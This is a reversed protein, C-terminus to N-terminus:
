AMAHSIWSRLSGGVYIDAVEGGKFMALMPFSVRYQAALELNEDDNLKVVKVKGALETAIQELIPEMLECPPCWEAWFHVIVPKTSKLVEEPFNSIGVKVIATPHENLITTNM